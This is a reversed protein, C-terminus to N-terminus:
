HTSAHRLQSPPCDFWRRVARTFASVESFGTLYAAEAISTDHRQLQELTIDRRLTDLVEKYSTREEALRRQLSRTSMGLRRAIAPLGPPGPELCEALARRTQAAFSTDAADALLQEAFELHLTAIRENAHMSPRDFTEATLVIASGEAAFKVPCRLIREYDSPEGRPEHEFHVEVPVIDTESVWSMVQLGLTSVYEAHIARLEEDETQLGVSIRVSSGSDDIELWPQDTLVRQFRTVRRLGDGVTASSLM